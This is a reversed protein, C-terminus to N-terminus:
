TQRKALHPKRAAIISDLGGFRVFSTKVDPSRTKVPYAAVPDAYASM